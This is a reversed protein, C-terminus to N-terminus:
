LLPSITLLHLYSMLCPIARLFFFFFCGIGGESDSKYGWKWLFCLWPQFFVLVTWRLDQYFNPHLKFNHYSANQFIGPTIKFPFCFFTVLYIMRSYLAERFINVPKGSWKRGINRENPVFRFKLLFSLRVM